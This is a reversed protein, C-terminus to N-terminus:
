KQVEESTGHIAAEVAKKVGNSIPHGNKPFELDAKIGQLEKKIDRLENAINGLEDAILYLARMEGGM